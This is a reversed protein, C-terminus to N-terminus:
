KADIFGKNGVAKQYGDYALLIALLFTLLGFTFLALLAYAIIAVIVFLLAPLGVVTSYGLYLYGLGFFFNLVAAVIPDKRQAPPQSAATSSAPVPSSASPLGSAPTLKAGCKFCFASSDPNEAGCRPCFM